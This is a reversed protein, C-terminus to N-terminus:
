FIRSNITVVDDPLIPSQKDLDVDRMKGNVLRHAKIGRSSGRDLLGGALAIAKELTLDANWVYSGPNRVQGTMVFHKATPVFVIDGDQLAINGAGLNLDKLKVHQVNADAQDPSPPSSGGTAKGHSIQVEDAADSTPSGAQVLAAMLTLSGQMQVATPTRVAGTVYVIQSKYQDVDVRVQPSKIYAPSLLKALDDQFQALTRGGALIKGLYPFTVMGAEDVPYKGNLNLAESDQVTVQLSDRGGIVYDPAAKPPTTASNAADAPAPAQAMPASPAAPAQAARAQPALTLALFMSVLLKMSM